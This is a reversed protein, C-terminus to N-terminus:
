ENIVQFYDNHPVCLSQLVLGSGDSSAGKATLPVQQQQQTATVSLLVKAARRIRSERRATRGHVVVGEVLMAFTSGEMIYADGSPSIALKICTQQIAQFFFRPVSLPARLLEDSISELLAIQRRSIVEKSSASSYEGVTALQGRHTKNIQACADIM